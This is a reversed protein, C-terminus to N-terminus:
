PKQSWKKNRNVNTFDQEHVNDLVCLKAVFSFHSKLFGDLYWVISM